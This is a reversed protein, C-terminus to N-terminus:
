RVRVSAYARVSSGEFLDSGAFTARFCYKGRYSLKAKYSWSGTSSTTVTRLTVYSSSGPRKVRLLVPTGAPVGGSVRGSITVTRRRAISSSSAKISCTTAPKAEFSVSVTHGEGVDSFTYSSV